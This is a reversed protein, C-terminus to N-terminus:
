VSRDDSKNRERQNEIIEKAKKPMGLYIINEIVAKIDKDPYDILDFGKEAEVLENTLAIELSDLSEESLGKDGWSGILPNYRQKKIDDDYDDIADAIYIWKGIHRGIKRGISARSKDLGEAMIDGLLEGFLEAPRDISPEGKEQEILFLRHLADSIKEELPRYKKSPKRKMASLFPIAAAAKLQKLGKEDTIDDRNKRYALLLSASACYELTDNIDAISHKHFPHAICRRRSFGPEKEEIAMRVLALFAFDYSLTLRACQGGCRGLARCLGCYVGRYYEYERMKLEPKDARVYGFM